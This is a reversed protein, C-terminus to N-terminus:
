WGTNIIGASDTTEYHWREDVETRQDVQDNTDFYAYQNTVLIAHIYKWLNRYARYGSINMCGSNTPTSEVPSTDAILQQLQQVTLRATYTAKGRIVDEQCGYTTRLQEISDQTLRTTYSWCILPSRAISPMVNFKLPFYGNGISVPGQSRAAEVFAPLNALYSDHFPQNVQNSVIANLQHPGAKLLTIGRSALDAPVTQNTKPPLGLHLVSTM